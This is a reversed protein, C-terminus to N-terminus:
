VSLSDEAETPSLNEALEEVAENSARNLRLAVDSLQRIAVGSLKAVREIDAEGFLRNGDADFACYVVYIPRVYEDGMKNIAAGAKHYDLANLASIRVTLNGMDPITVDEFPLDSFKLIEDRGALNKKM